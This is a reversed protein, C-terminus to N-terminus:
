FLLLQETDRPTTNWSYGDRRCEAAQSDFDHVTTEKGNRRMEQGVTISSTRFPFDQSTKCFGHPNRVDSSTNTDGHTTSTDKKSSDLHFFILFAISLSWISCSFHAQAAQIEENGFCANCIKCPLILKM